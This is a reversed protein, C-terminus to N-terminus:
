WACINIRGIMRTVLHKVQKWGTKISVLHMHINQWNQLSPAYRNGGLRYAFSTSGTERHIKSQLTCKSETMLGKFESNFGM